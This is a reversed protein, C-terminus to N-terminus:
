ISRFGLAMKITDVLIQRAICREIRAGNDVLQRAARLLQNSMRPRATNDRQVTISVRALQNNVRVTQNVSDHYITDIYDGHEV